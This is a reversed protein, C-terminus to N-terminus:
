GVAFADKLAAAVQDQAEGAREIMLDMSFFGHILGDYCAYDVEVGADGLAVAYAEGQDRLPDYEATIVVAPAVGALDAFIPSYVPDRPDVDDGAYQGHLWEMGTRTLFYGEANETMSPRECTADTVPYVLVQKVLEIRESDRALVSVVASLNGGASDGVVAVRDADVRLEEANDVVWQLAAWADDVAAPFPAEPALRYDVAVVVCEAKTALVRCLHDHSELNGFVWGGGHFFTVVPLGDDGSPRYIRIPIDGGPGPITRDAVDHLEIPSPVAGNVVERLKEPTTDDFTIGSATLYDVINQAQPDIPVPGGQTATAILSRCEEV